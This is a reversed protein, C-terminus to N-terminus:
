LIFKSMQMDFLVIGVAGGITSLILYGVQTDNHRRFAGWWSEGESRIGGDTRYIRARLAGHFVWYAALGGVFAILLVLGPAQWSQILPLSWTGVALVLVGAVAIWLDHTTNHRFHEYWTFRDVGTRYSASWANQALEFVIMGAIPFAAVGMNSTADGLSVTGAAVGAILAIVGGVVGYYVAAGRAGTVWATRAYAGFYLWLLVFVHKWHPQLHFEWGTLARVAVLSATIAPEFLSFFRQMENEYVALVDHLAPSLSLDFGRWALILLSIVGALIGLIRFM